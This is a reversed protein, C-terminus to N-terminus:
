CSGVGTHYRHVRGLQSDGGYVRLLERGGSRSRSSSSRSSRCGGTSRGRSRSGHVRRTCKSRRRTQSSRQDVDLVLGSGGGDFIFGRTGNGASIVILQFLCRDKDQDGRIKSVEDQDHKPMNAVEEPLSKLSLFISVQLLGLYTRRSSTM